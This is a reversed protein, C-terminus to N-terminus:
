QRVLETVLPPRARHVDTRQQYRAGLATLHTEAFANGQLTLSTPLGNEGFGNPLALAPIGALNGPAILNPNGEFASYAEDFSVGVPYAVTPLTPAVVADYGGFAAQLAAIILPRQRQADIYDIARVEYGAYGGLRNKANRL